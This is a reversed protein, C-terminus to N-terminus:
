FARDHFHGPRRSKSTPGICSTRLGKTNGLRLTSGTFRGMPALRPLWDIAEFRRRSRSHRSASLPFPRHTLKLQDRDIVQALGGRVRSPVHVLGGELFQHLTHHGVPHQDGQQHARDKIPGELDDGAAAPVLGGFLRPDRLNGDPGSRQRIDLDELDLHDLVQLAGVDVREVFTLPIADQHLAGAVLHGRDRLLHALRDAVDVLAKLERLQRGRGLLGEQGVCDRRAMGDEERAELRFILRLRELLTAIHVSPVARRADTVQGAPDILLDM